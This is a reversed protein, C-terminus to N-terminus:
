RYHIQKTYRTQFRREDREIKTPFKITPSDIELESKSLIVRMRDEAYSIGDSSSCDSNNATDLPIDPM